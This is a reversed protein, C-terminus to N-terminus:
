MALLIARVEVCYFVKINLYFNSGIVMQIVAM